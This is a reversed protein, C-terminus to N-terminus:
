VTAPIGRESRCALSAQGNCRAAPTTWAPAFGGGETRFNTTQVQYLHAALLRVQGDYVYSRVNSKM